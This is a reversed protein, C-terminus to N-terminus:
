SKRLRFLLLTDKPVDLIIGKSMPSYFSGDKDMKWSFIKNRMLKQYAYYMCTDCSYSQTQLNCIGEKNFYLTLTEYPNSLRSIVFALSSEREIYFSTFGNEKVAKNAQTLCEIKNLGIFSQGMLSASIFILINFFVLRM